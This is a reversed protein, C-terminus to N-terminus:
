LVVENAFFQKMNLILESLNRSILLHNLETKEVICAESGHVFITLEPFEDRLQKLLDLLSSAHSRDSCLVALYNAKKRQIRDRIMDIGDIAPLFDTNWGSISFLDDMLKTRTLGKFSELNAIVIEGIDSNPLQQFVKLMKWSLLRLTTFAAALYDAKIFEKLSLREQIEDLSREFLKIFVDEIRMGDSLADLCDVAKVSDGEILYNIYDNWTQKAQTVVEHSDWSTITKVTLSLDSPLQIIEGSKELRIRPLIDSGAPNTLIVGEDGTSLLVRTAPPFIHIFNIFLYCIKIDFLHKNCSDNLIIQMAKTTHMPKRYSRYLTLASYVDVIMMLKLDRDNPKVLLHDPYGSGNIREHHSRVVRCTEEPFNM